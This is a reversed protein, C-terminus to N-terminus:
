DANHIVEAEFKKRIRELAAKEKNNRDIMVRRQETFIEDLFQTTLILGFSWVTMTDQSNIILYALPQFTLICFLSLFGLLNFVTGGIGFIKIKGSRTAADKKLSEYDNEVEIVMMKSSEYHEIEDKKSYLLGDKFGDAQKLRADITRKIIEIELLAHEACDGQEKCVDKWHKHQSQFLDAFSFLWSATTIAAIITNWLPYDWFLKTIGCIFIFIIYSLFFINNRKM